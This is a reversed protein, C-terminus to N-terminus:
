KFYDSISSSVNEFRYFKEYAKFAEARYQAYDALIDACAKPIEAVHEIMRVCKFHSYLDLFSENKFAIIPIGSKFYYAIKQSSYAIHRDNLYELHYLALGIHASAIIEPIKSEPEIDLSFSVLKSEEKIKLKSEVYNSFDIGHFVLAVGDPLLHSIEITEECFRYPGIVGFYLLVYNQNSLKFKDQFYNSKKTFSEGRVSVPLYLKKNITNNYQELVAARLRDQIITADSKKHYYLEAARLHRYHIWDDHNEMDEIFLELSYYVLPVGFSKSFIGAWTLGQKEIGIFYDFSKNKLFNLSQFLVSRNLSTNFKLKRFLFFHRFRYYYWNLYSWYKLLIHRSNFGTKKEIDIFEKFFINGEKFQNVDSLGHKTINFGLFYVEFGLEALKTALDISYNQLLWDYQFLVIKKSM